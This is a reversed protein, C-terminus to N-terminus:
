FTFFTSLMVVSLIATVTFCENQVSIFVPFRFSVHSVCVSVLQTPILSLKNLTKTLPMSLLCYNNEQFYFQSFM